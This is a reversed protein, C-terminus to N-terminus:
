ALSRLVAVAAPNAVACANCADSGLEHACGRCDELKQRAARLEDLEVQLSAIRNAVLEIQKDLGVQIRELADTMESQPPVM